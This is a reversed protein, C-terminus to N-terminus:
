ICIISLVFVLSHQIIALKRSLSDSQAISTTMM